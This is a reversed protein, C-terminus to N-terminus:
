LNVKKKTRYKAPSIGENEKFARQFTSLSSFGSDQAIKELTYQQYNPSAILRKAHTVRFSNIYKTFSVGKVDNIANSLYQRNTNLRKSLTDLNENHNLFLKNDNLEEELLSVLVMSRSIEMKTKGDITTTVVDDIRLARYAIIFLLAAITLPMWLITEANYSTWFRILNIAYVIFIGSIVLLAPKLDTKLPLINQKKNSKFARTMLFIAALLYFFIHANFLINIELDRVAKYNEYMADLINKKYTSSRLYLPFIRFVFFIFPVIHLLHIWRLRFKKVLVSLSYFLILPGYLLVFPDKVAFFHPYNYYEKTYTLVSDTIHICLLLILFGLFLKSLNVSSNKKPILLNLSLFLGQVIGIIAVIPILKM